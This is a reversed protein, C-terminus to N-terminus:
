LLWGSFYSNLAVRYTLKLAGIQLGFWGSIYAKAGSIYPIVKWLMSFYLM